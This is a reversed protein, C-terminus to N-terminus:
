AHRKEERDVPGFLKLAQPVLEQWIEKLRKETLTLRVGVIFSLYSTFIVSVDRKELEGVKQGNCIIPAIIEDAKAYFADIAEMLAEHQAPQGLVQQVLQLYDRSMAEPKLHQIVMTELQDLVTSKLPPVNLFREELRSLPELMAAKFLTEKNEFYTFVTGFSVGAEKAIDSVKTGAFGNQAFLRIAAELISNRKALQKPSFAGKDM